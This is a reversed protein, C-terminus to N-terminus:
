NTKLSKIPPQKILKRLGFIMGFAVSILMTGILGMIGYGSISVISIKLFGSVLWVNLITIGLVAVLISVFAAVLFLLVPSFLAMWTLRTNSVGLSKMIAYNKENEKIDDIIIQSMFVISMTLMLIFLVIFVAQVIKLQSYGEDVIYKEPFIMNGNPVYEGLIASIIKDKDKAKEFDLYASVASPVYNSFTDIIKDFKNQSLFYDSKQEVNFFDNYFGIVPVTESIVNRDAEFSELPQISIEEVQITIDNFDRKRIEDYVMNEDQYLAYLDNLINADIIQSLPVIVGDELNKSLYYAKSELNEIKNVSYFAPMNHIKSNIDSLNLSEFAYYNKSEFDASVYFINYYTLANAVYLYFQRDSETSCNDLMESLKWRLSTDYYTEDLTFSLNSVSLNQLGIFDRYNTKVVGVVDLTFSKKMYTLTIEARELIDEYNKYKKGNKEGYLIIFDAVYDTIAIENIETPREGILDLGNQAGSDLEIVHESRGYYMPLWFLDSKTPSNYKLNMASSYNNDKLYSEGSLVNPKATCLIHQHGYDDLIRATMSKYNNSLSSISVMSVTLLIISFVLLYLKKSKRKFLNAFAFRLLVTLSIKNSKIDKNTKISTEETINNDYEISGNDLRIERNFSDEFIDKNHTIVVVCKIKSLEILYEVIKKTIGKDLSATIEDALVIESEKIFARAIAIRQKQGISLESVKKDSSELMEVKRLIENIDKNKDGVALALNDYVSLDGILNFDQFIYSISDQRYKCIEKEKMKGVDIGNYLFQGKTPKDLGAILNFLTTKGSGNDGTVLYLGVGDIEFSLDNLANKKGDYSKTLNVAKLNM